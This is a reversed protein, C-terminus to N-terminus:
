RRRWTVRNPILNKPDDSNLYRLAEESSNLYALWFATTTAKTARLADPDAPGGGLYRVGSIGGLDHHADEMWLLFKNGPKCYLFPDQRKVPDRDQMIGRSGISDKTGSVVLMPKTMAEFAQPPYTTTGPCLLLFASAEKIAKGGRLNTAGAALAATQGGYSHGGVGIHELDPLPAGVEACVEALHDVLYQDETVRLLPDGFSRPDNFSASRLKETTSKGQISDAHRPQVVIFGYSAWHEALPKYGNESGMYGHSFVIVPRNKGGKPWTVRIPLNRTLNRGSLTTTRSDTAFPGTNEYPVFHTNTMLGLLVSCLM